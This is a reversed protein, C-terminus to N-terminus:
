RLDEFTLTELDLQANIFDFKVNYTINGFQNDFCQSLLSDNSSIINRVTEILDICKYIANPNNNAQVFLLITFLTKYMDVGVLKNTVESSALYTMIQPFPMSLPEAVGYKFTKVDKLVSIKSNELTSNIVEGLRKLETNIKLQDPSYQPKITVLKTQARFKINILTKYFTGLKPVDLPNLPIIEAVEVNILGKRSNDLIRWFDSSSRRQFLQKVTDVLEINTDYSSKSTTSVTTVEFRVGREVELVKGTYQHIIKEYSPYLSLSPYQPPSVLVGSNLTKINRLTGGSKNEMLAATVAKLLSSFSQYPFDTIM